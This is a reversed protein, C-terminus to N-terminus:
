IEGTAAKLTARVLEVALEIENPTMVLKTNRANKPDM